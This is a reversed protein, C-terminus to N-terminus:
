CGHKNGWLLKHLQIQLRVPLRDAIIWEALTTPNLLNAVPSFLIECKNALDYEALKNCAWEYDNRDCLVFKIQDNTALVAINSYLNKSAEGSGPTKIDMIRSVRVDVKSIDIAGSTELSVIYQKECLDTLLKLCNTQALPEGGTVTVYRVGFAKTKTLITAMDMKIGNSYAYTTDCYNCRLPCGCLRIFVTPIGVTRSEGQISLFLESVLLHTLHM